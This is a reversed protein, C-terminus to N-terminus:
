TTTSSVMPATKGSSINPAAAIGDLGHRIHHDKECHECAFTQGDRINLVDRHTEPPLVEAMPKIAPATIPPANETVAEHTHSTTDSSFLNATAGIANHAVGAIGGVVGDVAEVMKNWTAELVSVVSYFNFEPM